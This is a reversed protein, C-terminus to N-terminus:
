TRTTSFFLFFFFNVKLTKLLIEKENLALIAIFLVFFTRAQTFERVKKIM